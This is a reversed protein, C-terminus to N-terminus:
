CIGDSYQFSDASVDKKKNRLWHKILKRTEKIRDKFCALQHSSAEVAVTSYGLNKTYNCNSSLSGAFMYSKHIVEKVHEQTM